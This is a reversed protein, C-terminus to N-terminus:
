RKLTDAQLLVREAKSWYRSFRSLDQKGNLTVFPEAPLVQANLSKMQQRLLPDPSDMSVVADATYAKQFALVQAVPDGLRIELPLELLCEYVFGIRKLSWNERRLKEDDFVYIAPMQGWWHRLADDHVWAVSIM